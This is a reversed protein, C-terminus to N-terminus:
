VDFARRESREPRWNGLVFIILLGGTIALNKMAHVFNDIKEGGSMNWFDHFYFTAVLTFLILLPAAFRAGFGVAIMLGCGVEIAGAIVALWQQVTMGTVTQLQMAYDAIDQSMKLKDSIMAKGDILSAASNIDMLKQAGSVIFIAVLAIRGVVFLVNMAM